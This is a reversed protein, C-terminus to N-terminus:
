KGDKALYKALNDAMTKLEELMASIAHLESVEQNITQVGLVERAEKSLLAPAIDCLYWGNVYTELKDGDQEFTLDVKM